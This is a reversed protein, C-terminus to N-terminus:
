RDFRQLIEGVGGCGAVLAALVIMSAAVRVRSM